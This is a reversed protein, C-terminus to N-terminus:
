YVTVTDGLSFAYLLATKVPYGYLKELAARYYTLQDTYRERLMAEASARDKPTRDTKYDILILSGDEEVLLCDVVGQVLVFENQLLAKKEDDETFMAAPMRVNFREERLVTKATLIRKFLASRFFVELYRRDILSAIAETIFRKEVLREIEREVGIKLVSAFDCFQMFLHTATGREAGSAAVEGQMFLPVRDFGAQESRILVEANEDLISPHLRSVSLKAPLEAAASHTYTFSLRRVLEGESVGGEAKTVALVTTDHSIAEADSIYQWAYEPCAAIMMDRYNSFHTYLYPHDYSDWEKKLLMSDYADRNKFSASIILQKRARTLAVYLIRMEEDYRNERMRYAIARRILTDYRIFGGSERIRLGVGLTKEHVLGRGEDQANFGKATDALFVYDFECGKSAHISMIRVSAFDVGVSLKPKNKDEGAEVDAILRCFAHVGCFGNAEFARAYDYFAMLADCQGSHKVSIARLPTTSLLYRVAKDSSQMEAFRRAKELFEFFVDLKKSFEPLDLKGTEDERYLLLSAYVSLAPFSERLLALEGLTIGFIPSKLLATLYIDRTPNDIVNLMAILLLVEPHEFLTDEGRGCQCSVSLRDLAQRYRDAHTMSRLLIVIEQPKVGNQLLAYIERAVVDYESTLESDVALLRTKLGADKEPLKGFVLADKELYPVRGSNNRFLKDFVANSYAIVGQDCRFNESLFITAEKQGSGEEYMPFRDRYASFLEPVAGRFSYISQKIDGVMFRNHRSIASFIADQLDNTDQYEDIFIADYKEAVSAALATPKGDNVLLQYTYRELDAFDLIGYHAKEETYTRDFASLVRYLEECFLATAKADRTYEISTYLFLNDSLEAMADKFSNRVALAWEIEGPKTGRYSGLKKPTYKGLKESITFFDESSLSEYRRIYDLDDSFAPLYVSAAPDLSLVTMVKEYLAGFYDFVTRMLRCVVDRYPTAEFDEATATLSRVSARLAGLGEPLAIFKEYFDLLTESLRTDKLEILNEAFESFAPDNEFFSDVTEEMVRLKLLRIETEDAIRLSASLSLESFHKRILSFCFSHITSIEASEIGAIAASLSSERKTVGDENEERVDKLAKKLEKGIRMKLEEAAAKTFTVVLIRDIAIPDDGESVMRLIRRSLVATKGSGAAASVLLDMVPAEMAMRQSETPKFKMEAM